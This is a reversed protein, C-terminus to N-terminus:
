AKKLLFPSLGDKLLCEITDPRTAIEVVLQTEEPGLGTVGARALKLIEGASANDIVCDTAPELPVGPFRKALVPRVTDKAEKRALQDALGDDGCASLTFLAALAPILVLKM